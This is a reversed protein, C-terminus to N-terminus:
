RGRVADELLAVAEEARDAPVAVRVGGTLLGLEPRTAGADDAGIAAPIGCAELFGRALEAQHRTPYAAVAVLEGAPAPPAAEPPPCEEPAPPPGAVLTAGCFPCVEVEDRYEGPRGNVELEPCAPDPCHRV